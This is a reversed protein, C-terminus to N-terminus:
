KKCAGEATDTQEEESPVRPTHQTFPGAGWVLLARREREADQEKKWDEMM